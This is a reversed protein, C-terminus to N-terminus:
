SSGVKRVPVEGHPPLYGSLFEYEAEQSGLPFGLWESLEKDFVITVHSGDGSFTMSGHPSTFVGNHPKPAPTDPEYPMNGNDQSTVGSGCALLMSLLLLISISRVIKLMKRLTVTGTLLMMAGKM